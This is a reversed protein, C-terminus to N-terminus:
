SVNTYYGRFRKNPSLQQACIEVPSIGFISEVSKQDPWQLAVNECLFFVEEDKQLPHNRIKQILQAFKVMYQGKTSNVGARNANVPSDIFISYLM